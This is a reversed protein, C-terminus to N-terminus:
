HNFLSSKEIAKQVITSLENWGIGTLAEVQDAAENRPLELLHATRDGLQLVQALPNDQPNHHASVADVIPTPIKWQKLMMGGVVAHDYGFEEGEAEVQTAGERVRAMVRGYPVIYSRSLFLKGIDHMLGAAFVWKQTEEGGRTRRSPYLRDALHAVALSHMWEEKRIGGNIDNMAVAMTMNRLENLGLYIVAEDLRGIQRPLSYFSSNVVSLTRSALSQDSEVLRVIATINSNETDLLSLLQGVINFYAPLFRVRSIDEILNIM